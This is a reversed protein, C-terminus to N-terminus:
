NKIQNEFQEDDSNVLKNYEIVMKDYCYDKLIEVDKFKKPDVIELIKVDIPNGINLEKTHYNLLKRTNIVTMIIKYNLQDAIHFAGSKFSIFSGDPNAGFNGEPYIGINTDNAKGFSVVKEVLSSKKNQNVFFTNNVWLLLGFFPYYFIRDLVLITFSKKFITTFWHDVHCQHNAILIYKENSDNIKDVYEITEKDMRIRTQTLKMFIKQYTCLIKFRIDKSEFCISLLFPFIAFLSYTYTLLNYSM